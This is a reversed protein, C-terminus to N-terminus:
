QQPNLGLAKFQRSWEAPAERLREINIGRPLRLGIRCVCNQIRSILCRFMTATAFAPNPRKPRCWAIVPMTSYFDPWYTTARTGCRPGRPGSSQLNKSSRMLYPAIWSRRSNAPRIGDKYKVEGIYFRNRLLYFLSGRGFIVGGRSAGTALWFPDPGVAEFITQGGAGM